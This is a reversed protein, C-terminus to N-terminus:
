SRASAVLADLMTHRRAADDFTPVLSTGERLDQLFRAYANAVNCIRASQGAVAPVDHYMEPVALISLETDTGRGGRIDLDALQLHGNPGTVVIDGDTGNIEWHLNTARSVGGRYHVAAVTGNDLRGTLAVQDPVSMQLLDGTEVDLVEPRRTTVTATFEALEGLVHCAADLTHGVPISVITAGNAADITYRVAASAVQGGWSFGSGILTTSLVEGVYGEGILDRLFRLSPASRAQLGVATQVGRRHAEEALAESEASGNGLPWECYVMKGARIAAMVLDHHYQVKVAIVVLDIEDSAALEDANAFALPVDHKEAARAASEASSASVGRLEYGDVARLAPVHAGAAFGGSASLGIIGVRIPSDAASRAGM